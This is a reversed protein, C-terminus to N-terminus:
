ERGKFREELHKDKDFKKTEIDVLIDELSYKLKKVMPRADHVLSYINLKKDAALYNGDELDYFAFFTQHNFDIDFLDDPNLKSKVNDDLAAYFLDVESPQFEITTQEINQSQIRKLDFEEVEYNSNEIRLGALFNDHIIFEVATYDNLTRSFIRQGSIKFNKGRKKFDDLSTGPYGTTIFKFGPFLVWDALGLLNTKQRQEKLGQHDDPLNNILADLLLTWEQRQVKFKYPPFIYGLMKQFRTM